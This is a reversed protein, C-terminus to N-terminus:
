FHLNGHRNLLKKPYKFDVEFIYGKDSDVNYNKIFGEDFKFVYKIWKFGNVPVNQSMGWGHLNNADLYMLYSLIIDKSYNKIYKNAKSM